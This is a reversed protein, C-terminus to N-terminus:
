EVDLFSWLADQERYNHHVLSVLWRKAHIDELLVREPSGPEYYSAWDQWMSFAEDQFSGLSFVVSSALCRMSGELILVVRTRHYYLECDGAWSLCGLNGREQRRRTRQKSVRGISREAGSLLIMIWPISVEVNAAFYHVWVGAQAVAKEIREVDAEEAFFEVFAKQFVYGGPPGWGVTEDTSLASDIAPQSGVTWLGRRTLRELQPLIM